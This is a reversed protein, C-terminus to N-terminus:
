KGGWGPAKDQEAPEIAAIKLELYQIKLDVLTLKKAAYESQSRLEAVTADVYKQFDEGRLSSTLQRLGAYTIISNMENITNYYVVFETKNEVAWKSLKWGIDNKGLIRGIYEVPFVPDALTGSTACNLKSSCSRSAFENGSSFTDRGRIQVIPMQNATKHCGVLSEGNRTFHPQRKVIYHGSSSKDKLYSIDASRMNSVVYM